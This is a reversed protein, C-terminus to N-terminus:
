AHPAEPISWHLRYENIFDTPFNSKWGCDRCEFQSGNFFTRPMTRCGPAGCYPTYGQITMLNKRVISVGSM